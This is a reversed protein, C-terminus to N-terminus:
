GRGEASGRGRRGVIMWAVGAGLALLVGAAVWSTAPAVRSSGDGATASPSATRAVSSPVSTPTASAEPAPTTEAPVPAAEAPTEPAPSEPAPAAAAPPEAAPPAPPAAAPPPPAPAPLGSGPYAAFVEVAWTTGGGEILAIGIDTFGGLINARHGSSNMWGDHVAAGSGYGQAVNEGWSTWGGPIESGVSPNHGLQGSAAMQQAWRLAVADLAGNRVLGGLGNAARAENVLGHITGEDYASAPAAAGGLVACAAVVLALLLRLGSRIM